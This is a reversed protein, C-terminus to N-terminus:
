ILKLKILENEFRKPLPAELDFKLDNLDCSMKYCHLFQGGTSGKKGYKPDGLLPTGLSGLRARIQHTKGTILKIEILSYAGNSKLTRIGTRIEQRDDAPEEFIEVKNDENKKIYAIDCDNDIITGECITLYRKDVDGHAVAEALNRQANLNKGFAMIGTTNRDLRGVPSPRFTILDDESLSNTKLLYGAVVDIISEDGSKDGQSLMGFPKNVFLYDDDEFVINLDDFSAKEYATSRFKDFTEDSFYIKIVDGSNLILSGEAKKDNVTINKKRLMKYIFGKSAKPLVRTLFHDLRQGEQNIEIKFDKM